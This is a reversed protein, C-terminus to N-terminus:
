WGPLRQERAIGQRDGVVQIVELIGAYTKHEDRIALYRVLEVTGDANTSWGEAVDRAGAKFERLISELVELSEPPHCDRVDRGIFRADCTRYSRGGSWFRLVDNQDAFSVDVPLHRFVLLAQDETLTGRQWYM